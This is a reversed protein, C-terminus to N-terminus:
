VELLDKGVIIRGSFHKRAGALWVEEPVPPNEAPVFHSLVLTRVRAEAAVRGVEEVPTHSAILHKRLEASGPGSGAIADIAPTYLAEHVLVDVDRALAILNDSPATDGSLVISRDPADFRYALAPRVPPHEVVACRVRMGDETVKGGERLEHAHILPELPPKGEDARRVAIDPASMELFLRTIRELPPPGWTDVRTQLGTSWALLLLTGYDANHDSHHHTIFVHRIARLPVGALALQRAVGNGCDVVCAADGSVIVQAPAARNRKPSPGGATGLLILRTKAPRSQPGGAMPRIAAWGAGAKLLNRRTLEM